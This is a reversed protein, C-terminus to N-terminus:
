RRKKKFIRLIGWGFAIMFWVFTAIGLVYGFQKWIAMILFLWILAIVFCLLKSFIISVRALWASISLLIFSIVTAVVIYILATGWRSEADNTFAPGCSVVFIM